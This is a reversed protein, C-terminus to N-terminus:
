NSSAARQLIALIRPVCAERTFRELAFRRGLEGLRALEEAPCTSARRIVDALGSVDGPTSVWGAGAAEIASATASGAAVTAVVPRGALLYTILKSPVSALSQEGATPLVFLDAAALPGSGVWPSLFHVRDPALRAASDRCSALESGEGAVLLHVREDGSLFPMSEIVQEVGAARGVNGAYVVLFASSPVGLSARLQAGSADGRPDDSEARWNPVVAVKAAALGRTAGYDRAFEESIAVVSHAANAIRRDIARMSRSLVSDSRTRGQAVLSEPYVDQLSLAFPVRRFKAVAATMGAAVIPWTNVYLVDPRRRLLLHLSSAIGFSVNELLRSLMTSRRSLVSAVRIVRINGERRIRWPRRSYGRHLRGGPRSPFPALVTVDYGAAALAEAVDRSTGASVVPEPPYVCSVVTARKM